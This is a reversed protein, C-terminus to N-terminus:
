WLLAVTILALAMAVATVPSFLALIGGLLNVAGVVLILGWNKAHESSLEEADVALL